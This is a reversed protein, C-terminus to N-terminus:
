PSRDRRSPMANLMLTAGDDAESASPPDGKPTGETM